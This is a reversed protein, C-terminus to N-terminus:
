GSVRVSSSTSTIAVCGLTTFYTSMGSWCALSAISRRMFRPWPPARSRRTTSVTRVRTGPTTNRVAKM